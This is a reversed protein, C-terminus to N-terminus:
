GKLMSPKKKDKYDSRIKSFYELRQALSREFGRPKPTYFRTPTVEQPFANQGSCGEPTAHDYIYKNSGKHNLLFDPASFHSTTSALKKAKDWATLTANSKPCLALFIVAYAMSLEGEAAGLKEFAESSRLVVDLAQPEALGIDEICIRTLRRFVVKPDEGGEVMRALYYLSADPDSTRISKQLASLHQFHHPGQKDYHSKAEFNLEALNKATLNEIKLHYLTQLQWLLQRIDGKSQEKLREISQADFHFSTFKSLFRDIVIQLEDQSFTPLHVTQMRSLIAPNVVFSPNETTAALLIISRKEIFSLFFDQGVKSLRHFEDVFFIPTSQLLPYDEIKKIQAKIESLTDKAASFLHLNTKFSAAYLMALTTKGSGPPGHFVISLPYNKSSSLALLGNDNILHNRGILEGLKQPTMAQEFTEDQM